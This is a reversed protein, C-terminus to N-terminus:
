SGTSHGAICSYSFVGGDKTVVKVAYALGSSITLGTLDLIATCSSQPKLTSITSAATITTTASITTCTSGGKLAVKNGSVYFAAFVALGSPRTAGAPSRWGTAQLSRLLEGKGKSQRNLGVPQLGRIRSQLDLTRPNPYAAQVGVQSAHTPSCLGM